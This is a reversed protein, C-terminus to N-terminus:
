WIGVGVALVFCTGAAAYWWLEDNSSPGVTTLLTVLLGIGGTSLSLLTKDKEMATEVWATVVAGYFAVQKQDALPDNDDTMKNISARGIMRCRRALPGRRRQGQIKM